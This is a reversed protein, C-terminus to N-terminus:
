NLLDSFSLPKIQRPTAWHFGLLVYMSILHATDDDCAIGQWTSCAESAATSWVDASNFRLSAKLASLGQIEENDLASTSTLLFTISLLAIITSVRFSMLSFSVSLTCRRTDVIRLMSGGAKQNAYDVVIFSSTTSNCAYKTFM